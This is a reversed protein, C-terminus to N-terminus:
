SLGQCKIRSWKRKLIPLKLNIAKEKWGRVIESKACSIFAHKRKTLRTYDRDRKVQLLRFLNEEFKQFTSYWNYHCTISFSVCSKSRKVLSGDGDLFGTWFAFFKDETDIWGLDLPNETKNKKFGYKQKIQQGVVHDQVAVRVMRSKKYGDYSCSGGDGVGTKLFRAFKALHSEDKESITVVVQGGESIWGDAAIFGIWYWTEPCDETLPLLDGKRQPEIERNAGCRRAMEGIAHRNVGPFEAEIEEWSAQPWLEILRDRKQDTWDFVFITQLGLRQRKTGIAARSKRPLLKDLEDLSASANQKLTKIESKSWKSRTAVIGLRFARRQVAKRTRGLLSAIISSGDLAYREHLIQDESLTWNSM